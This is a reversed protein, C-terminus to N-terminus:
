KENPEKHNADKNNFNQSIPFFSRLNKIFIRIMRKKRDPIQGFEKFAIYEWLTNRRDQIQHLSYILYGACFIYVVLMVFVAIRPTEERWVFGLIFVSVLIQVTAINAQRHTHEFLLQFWDTEM